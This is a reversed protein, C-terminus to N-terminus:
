RSRPTVPPVLTPKPKEPLDDLAISVWELRTKTSKQRLAAVTDVIRSYAVDDAKPMLAITSEEFAGHEELLKTLGKLDLNGDTDCLTVKAAECGERAPVIEGDLALTFGGADIAILPGRGLIKKRTWAGELPAIAIPGLAGVDVFQLKTERRREGAEEHCRWWIFPREDDEYSQCHVKEEVRDIEALLRFSELGAQRSTYIVETMRSTPTKRDAIIDITPGLSEQGLLKLERNKREIAEDLESKLPEVFLSREGGKKYRADLGFEDLDVVKKNNLTIVGARIVLRLPTAGAMTPGLVEGDFKVNPGHFREQAMPELDEFVNSGNTATPLQLDKLEMGIELHPYFVGEPVIPENPPGPTISESSQTCLLPYQEPEFTSCTMSRSASWALMKGEYEVAPPGSDCGWVFLIGVTLLTRAVANM